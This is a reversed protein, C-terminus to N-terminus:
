QKKQVYEMYGESVVSDSYFRVPGEFLLIEAIVIDDLCGYSLVSKIQAVWCSLGVQVVASQLGSPLELFSFILSANCM